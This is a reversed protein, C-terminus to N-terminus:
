FEILGVSLLSLGQLTTSIPATIDQFQIKGYMMSTKSCSSSIGYDLTLIHLFLFSVLLFVFVFCFSVFAPFFIKRGEDEVKQM